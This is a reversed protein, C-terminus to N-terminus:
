SGAPRRRRRILLLGGVLAAVIVAAGLGLWLLAPRNQPKSAANTSQPPAASNVAVPERDPAQLVATSSLRTWRTQDQDLWDLLSDL